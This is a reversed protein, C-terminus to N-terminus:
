ERMKLTDRWYLSKKNSLDKGLTAQSFEIVLFIDEPYPHHELYLKGLPRVIAVDPVPESDNPLTIPKGDRVKVRDGLLSRLYDATETNYYAHPEREPSMVIIDGKLLELPQDDFISSAIARHYRDLTWRYATVTM